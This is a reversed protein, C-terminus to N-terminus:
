MIYMSITYPGGVYAWYPIVHFIHVLTLYSGARSKSQMMFQPRMHPRPSRAHTTNDSKRKCPTYQNSDRHCKRIQIFAQDSHEFM